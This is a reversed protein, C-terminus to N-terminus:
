TPCMMMLAAALELRELREIAATREFREFGFPDM